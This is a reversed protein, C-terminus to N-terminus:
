KNTEKKTLNDFILGNDSLASAVNIQFSAEKIARDWSGKFTQEFIEPYHRWLVMGLQAPDAGTKQMINISAEISQKIQDSIAQEVKRLNAIQSIDYFSKNELMKAKVQVQIDFHAQGHRITPTITTKGDFLQLTMTHNDEDKITTVYTSDHSKIWNLGIAADGEMAAVMKDGKFIAYGLVEIEKSTKESKESDKVGMYLIHPDGSQSSLALGIDKMNISIVNKSKALERITESPFREFRPNAKLLDYGNGKCIVIYSTLRNEPNRAVVDFLERIGDKAVDEGIVITRRHGLYTRRSMRRQLRDQAERITSGVESDIYYSKEGGTGGGGGKAGGIQGPLPLMLSLRYSGNKEKDVASSLVFAVDNIETRDWCGSLIALSLVLLTFSCGKTFSSV